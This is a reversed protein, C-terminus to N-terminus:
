YIEGFRRGPVHITERVPIHFMYTFLRGYLRVYYYYPQYVQSAIRAIIRAVLERSTSRNSVFRSPRCADARLTRIVRAGTHRARERDSTRVASARRKVGKRKGRERKRKGGQVRTRENRAARIIQLETLPRPRTRALVVRVCACMRKVRKEIRRRDRSTHTCLYTAPPWQARAHMGLVVYSVRDVPTM